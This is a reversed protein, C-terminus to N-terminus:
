DYLKLKITGNTDGGETHLIHSVTSTETTFAAWGVLDDNTSFLNLGRDILGYLGAAAYVIGQLVNGDALQGIAKVITINAGAFYVAEMWLDLATVLECPKDDDEWLVVAFARETNDPDTADIPFDDLQSDSLILARGYWDEDNQDFRRTYSISNYQGAQCVSTYSTGPLYSHLRDERIMEFVHVEIEPDGKLWSEGLDEVNSRELYLGPDPAGGGGGGGPSGGGGCGLGPEPECPPPMLSGTGIGTPVYTGIAGNADDENVFGVEDLEESFDTEIPVLAVTPTTPAVDPDLTVPQGSLDYGIPADIDEAVWAVIVSSGGTWASRHSDVPVYVELPGADDVLDQMAQLTRNTSSAMLNILQGRPGTSLLQEFHLKHEVTHRSNRMAARTRTRVTPNGLALALARAVEDLAGPNAGVNSNGMANSSPGSTSVQVPAEDTVAQDCAALSFALLGFILPLLLKM